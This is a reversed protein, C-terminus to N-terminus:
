SAGGRLTVRAFESASGVDLQKLESGHARAARVQDESLDM